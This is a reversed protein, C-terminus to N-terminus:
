VPMSVSLIGGVQSFWANSYTCTYPSTCTTPDKYGTGGSHSSHNASYFCGRLINLEGNPM